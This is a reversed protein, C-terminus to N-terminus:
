YIMDLFKQESKGSDLQSAAFLTVRLVWPNHFTLQNKFSGKSGNLVQLFCSVTLAFTTLFFLRETSLLIASDASQHM